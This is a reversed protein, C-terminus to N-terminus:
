KETSGESDSSTSYFREFTRKELDEEGMGIGKKMMLGRKRLYARKAWKWMEAGVFFLVTVAFVIGWEKDIAAHLFVRRNLVPIYLTPFISFFGVVVSWFLFTNIWLRNAWAKTNRFAGHFFSLRADVLEWAFFVFIWMMATYCTSRARFVGECADSYRLNCDHGFNGDYFGFMVIIFSSLLCIAMIIGYAALDAIFELTFVGYKLNQPPRNLIHKSASEFGLGTETFAGAVLLMFLIEVPTIQFISTGTADKYALGVLLTTVFAVNASLVHLMFKQVNDFIRRGEEVANLISAFNDDSLVIDSASKAVDSGGLGMAIGVDARKLSPSDNVGDGTMAVFRGRRHLADIMRVKTSPACRAVVLPLEPLRDLEDDSLRDFDHAAMVLGKAIDARVLEMRAPLIGVEIAIARATEPHDGTLMHVAIGAQHCKFVSPRSEPRPPDYIGILGRFILDREFTERNLLGRRVDETSIPHATTTNSALALVRLGRRAMAEMNSLIQHKFESTIPTPDNNPSLSISTCSSLVREVAGKTFIHIESPGGSEGNKRCLVSMKKISSDFPFEALQMWETSGDAGHGPRGFRAAFVQIAIETPDGNAQWNSGAATSDEGDHHVREVTALNALSAIDLYHQLSAHKQEAPSDVTVGEDEAARRMTRPEADTFAVIGCEPNHPDNPTQVSYTGHGPIWAM